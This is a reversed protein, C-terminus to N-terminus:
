IPGRGRPALRVPKLGTLAESVEWLRRQVDPDNSEESSGLPRCYKFYKGSVAGVEPSCALYIPTEAGEDANKFFRSLAHFLTNLVFSFNRLLGTHIVGPHVCNATVGSGELRRALEYTFVINMLKTRAYAKYGKYHKEYQIDDFDITGSSHATSAVNIVRAPASAELLDILLNTLMFYALHNVFLQMEHGEATVRRRSTLIAANNVLVDLRDSSARVQDALGRVGGTTSLDAVLLEVRENGSRRVIADRAKQGRKRSRCAMLVRAGREALGAATAKGLGSNAGTVLVTKNEINWDM